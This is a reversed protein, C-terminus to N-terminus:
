MHRYWIYIKIEAKCSLFSLDLNLWGTLMNSEVDGSKWPLDAGLALDTEEEASPAPALSSRLHSHM